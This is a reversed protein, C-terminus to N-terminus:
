IMISVDVLDEVLLDVMKTLKPLPEGQDSVELDQIDWFEVEEEWQPYRSQFVPRHELDSVAIIITAGDFDAATVQTPTELVDPVAVDYEVLTEVTEASVTGEYEMWDVLLGRSMARWALKNENAKHNFLFEAFRSRCLHGSCLFLVTRM